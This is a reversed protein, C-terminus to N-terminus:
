ISFLPGRQDPGATGRQKLWRTTGVPADEEEMEDDHHVMAPPPLHFDADIAMLVQVARDMGNTNCKGTKSDKSLSAVEILTGEDRIIVADREFYHNLQELLMHENHNSKHTYFSHPEGQDILARQEPPIYCHETPVREDVTLAHHPMEMLNREINFVANMREHTGDSRAFGYWRGLAALIIGQRHGTAYTVVHAMQEIRKGPIRGWVGIAASDRKNNNQRGLSPDCSIIVQIRPDPRKWIRM